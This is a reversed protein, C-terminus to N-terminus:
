LTGYSILNLVIKLLSFFTLVYKKKSPLTKHIKVIEKLFTQIRGILIALLRHAEQAFLDHYTDPDANCRENDIISICEHCQFSAQLGQQSFKVRSSNDTADLCFVILTCVILM